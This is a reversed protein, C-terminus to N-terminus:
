SGYGCANKPRLGDATMCFVRPGAYPDQGEGPRRPDLTRRLRKTTASVLIDDSGM